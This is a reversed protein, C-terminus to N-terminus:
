TQSRLRDIGYPIWLAVGNPVDTRVSRAYADRLSLLSKPVDGRHSDANSERLLQAMRTDRHSHRMRMDPEIAEIYIHNAALEEKVMSTISRNRNRPNDGRYKIVAEEPSMQQVLVQYMAIMKIKRGLISKRFGSSGIFRHEEANLANYCYHYLGKTAEVIDKPMWRTRNEALVDIARVTEPTIVDTKDVETERIMDSLRVMDDWIRRTSGTAIGLQRLTRLMALDQPAAIFIKGLRDRTVIVVFHTDIDGAAVGVEFHQGGSCSMGNPFLAIPEYMMEHVLHTRTITKGRQVLSTDTWTYFEDFQRRLRMLDEQMTKDEKQPGM